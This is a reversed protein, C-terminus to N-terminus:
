VSTDMLKSGTMGAALGGKCQPPSYSANLLSDMCFQIGHTAIDSPEMAGWKGKSLEYACSDTVLGPHLQVQHFLPQVPILVVTYYGCDVLSTHILLTLVTHTSASDQLSVSSTQFLM